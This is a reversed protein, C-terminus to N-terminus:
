KLMAVPTVCASSGPCTLGGERKCVQSTAALAWRAARGHRAPGPVGGCAQVQSTTSKLSSTKWAQQAQQARLHRVHIRGRPQPVPGLRALPDAAVLLHPDGQPVPQSSASQARPVCKHRCLAARGPAQGRGEGGAAERM